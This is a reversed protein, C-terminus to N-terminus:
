VSPIELPVLCVAPLSCIHPRWTCSGSGHPHPSVWVMGLGQVQPFVEVTELTVGGGWVRCKPDWSGQNPCWTEAPQAGSTPVLPNRYDGPITPVPTPSTEEGWATGYFDEDKGM